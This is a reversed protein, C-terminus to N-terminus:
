FRGIAIFISLALFVLNVGIERYEGRKLHLFAGLLVVVALATAALPTWIPAMNTAQPVILGIAGLLELVGILFVLGRPVDNVWAWSQTAKEYQVAKLWGSYIFGVGLIVQFVWLAINM